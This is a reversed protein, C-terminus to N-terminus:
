ASRGRLAEFCARESDVLAAFSAHREGLGPYWSAWIYAAWEGDRSIDGSDLLWYQADGERSVLLVRDALSSELLEPYQGFIDWLHPEADRLWHVEAATRMIWMFPGLNLWGDSVTLFTRYSPPLPICLRQELATLHEADAGDFGLWGLLRHADSIGALDDDDTVRLVDASYEALYRRWEDASRAGDTTTM